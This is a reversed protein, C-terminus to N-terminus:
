RKKLFYNRYLFRFSNIFFLSETKMKFIKQTQKSFLDFFYTASIQSVLTAIAAGKGAYQPILLLNLIINVIVGCVTRKLTIIQLNESLLWKGSVVGLFVFAGTWIHITLISSAEIYSEGYILKVIMGSFFTFVVSISIGIWVMLDFLGQLRKMYIKSCEAKGEIIAPFVSSSIAMPVFYWVESLRVAAAYVGVDLTSKMEKIMVQDIKMYITVLLGSFIYPWSDKLLYKAVKNNFVLNKYNFSKNDNLFFITLLLVTFLIEFFYVWVFYILPMKTLIFIIKLSNSFLIGATNSIVVFRSLVKAQFYFNVVNFCQLAVAVSIIYVLNSTEKTGGQLRLVAFILFMMFISGLLRLLFSTGLIDNQEDPRRILERTVVENLGLTGVTSFLMVYSFVYSYQGFQEPGLYRAVWVGVFLAIFMRFINEFLLWSTNRLYQTFKSGLNLIDFKNM